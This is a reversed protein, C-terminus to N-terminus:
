RPSICTEFDGGFGLTIDPKVKIQNLNLVEVRYKKYLHALTFLIEQLALNRGICFRAGTGFPLFANNRHKPTSFRDPSFLEPNEWERPNNHLGHINIMVDREAPIKYDDLVVSQNTKRFFMWGPPLVRLTEKIVNLLYPLKFIDQVGNFSSDVENLLKQKVDQNKEIFYIASSISHASSEYGAAVLTTIEGLIEEESLNKSKLELSLAANSNRFLELLNEKVIKTQEQMNRKIESANKRMYFPNRSLSIFEMVADTGIQIKAIADASPKEGFLFDSIIRVSIQRVYGLLNFSSSKPWESLTSEINEAYHPLGLKIRKNSFHTLLRKRKASWEAGETTLLGKGLFHNLMLTASSLSFQNERNLLVKNISNASSIVYVDRVGLKTQFAEGQEKHHKSLFALPDIAFQASQRFEIVKPIVTGTLLPM